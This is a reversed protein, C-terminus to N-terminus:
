KLKSSIWLFPEEAEDVRIEWSLKAQSLVRDLIKAYFTNGSPLSVKTKTLDIRQRALSNYDILFPVEVREQLAPLAEDLPTKDIEVNLFKLLQPMIENTKKETPWGVPWSQDSQRVATIRLKVELGRGKEPVLVLGLPRLAAALATGSSLGQLEDAVTDSGALSQKADADLTPAPTLKVSIKRVVDGTRVGKTSFDVKAALATHVEVLQKSTLGFAGVKATLHEEGGVKLKEIWQQLGRKDTSRFTAGPLRLTNTATIIGTVRYSLNKGGGVKEVTPKDGSEVSRIRLGTQDLDKFLALWEHQATVAVGQEAVLDFEVPPAAHLAAASSLLLVLVARLGIASVHM